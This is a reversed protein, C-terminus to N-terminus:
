RREILNAERGKARSRELKPLPLASARDLQQIGQAVRVTEAAQKKLRRDLRWLGFAAALGVAGMVLWPLAPMALRLSEGYLTSGLFNGLGGGLALAMASVGFYSGRAEARAQGAIVTNQNTLAVLNGLSFLAVSVLMIPFSVALAISGLGAAMVAIGLVMGAM